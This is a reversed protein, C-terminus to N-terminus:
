SGFSKGAKQRVYEGRYRVGKGKYPEPPRSARMRAAALGVRQKDHGTVVISTPNPCAAQVGEPLDIQVPNCFGVNLVVKRGQVAANWGVGIVELEKQYGKTVGAIMSSLMARTTGHHARSARDDSARAVLVSSGEVKVTVEAAHQFESTGKPGTVKIKRDAGVEVKVGGPIAVPQKGIRSM